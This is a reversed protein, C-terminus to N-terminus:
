GLDKNLKADTHVNPTHVNARRVTFIQFQTGADHLGSCSLALRQDGGGQHLHDRRKKDVTKTPTLVCAVPCREALLSFTQGLDKKLEVPSADAM